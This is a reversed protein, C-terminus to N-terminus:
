GLLTGSGMSKLRDLNLEKSLRQHFESESRNNWWAEFEDLDVRDNNNSDMEQFAEDLEKESLELGLVSALEKVETKDLFGSDDTDIVNFLEQVTKYGIGRLESGKNDPIRGAYSEVYKRAAIVQEAKVDETWGLEEAMIDAVVPIASLAADKNLFALRTRRSLIDEITCAYERCAYRVEATIYPYNPALPVGFRPWVKNTTKSFECVEWARTGYTKALNDATDNSMGHKQILQINLNPTFGEGGFLKLNLTCSKPGNEGVIKDVVEEAMERWTTWKGGAIFIVGTDPNESIIHDRSVPAGPLAHPDAALPRWGRWASLVDSRRVRLEKDLYKRSEDLIWRIEDEPASPLTEAPCKTDTTGVLTHKEWPLFFLFRGDSTNYDLLGINKPCYYGPLIVHTGSAGTVAPKLNSEDKEEMGRLLDTFPGGAFVVKKSYVDFEKNSMRDLARVGIVTKGDEGRIVDVMEVYNSIHAGHEAASLAIAINTRADNHQAEYFVSCFKIDRDALQPFAEKSKAKGMVYSPPCTFGSMSDYVKLIFPALVPFFGFLPHNFPAPSIHLSTFPMAIPVWNTLHSQKDTMYRREKHCNLVMKIEGAFDKMTDIPNTLLKKSLLSAAATAMYRIGAWILKTSRSSTESSFDGREICAVKMSGDRSAADFAVGAGTAGGGIVLIDYPDSPSSSSLRRIQEARSPVGKPGPVERPYTAQGTIDLGPDRKALSQSTSSFFQVTSSNTALAKFTLRAVRSKYTSSVCLVSVM